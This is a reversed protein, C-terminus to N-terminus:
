NPGDSANLWILPNPGAIAHKSPKRGEYFSSRSPPLPSIPRAVQVNSLSLRERWKNQLGRLGAM